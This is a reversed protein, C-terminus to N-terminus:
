DLYFVLGGRATFYELDKGGAFLHQYNTDLRLGFRERHVLAGIGAHFGFFSGEYVGTSYSEVTSGTTVTADDIFSKYYGLGLNLFPRMAKEPSGFLYDNETTISLLGMDGGSYESGPTKGALKDSDLSYWSYGVEFGGLYNEMLGTRFSAALMFGSQYNDEVPGGAPWSWGGSVTFYEAEKATETAATPATAATTQTATSDAQAHLSRASGAVVLLLISVLVVKSRM